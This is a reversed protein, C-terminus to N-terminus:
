CGLDDFYAPHLEKVHKVLINGKYGTFDKHCVPCNIGRGSTHTRTHCEAQNRSGFFKDCSTCEWGNTVRRLSRDARTCAQTVIHVFMDQRVKFGRECLPCTHTKQVLRQHNHELNVEVKPQSVRSSLQMNNQQSKHSHLHLKLGRSTPFTKSCLYCSYRVKSGIVVMNSTTQNGVKRRQMTSTVPANFTFPETVLDPDQCVMYKFFDDWTPSVDEHEKPKVVNRIPQVDNGFSSCVGKEIQCTSHSTTLELYQPINVTCGFHSPLGMEDENNFRQKKLAPEFEGECPFVSEWYTADSMGLSSVWTFTHCLDSDM